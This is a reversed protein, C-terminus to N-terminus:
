GLCQRLYVGTQFHGSLENNTCYRYELEVYDKESDQIGIHARKWVFHVTGATWHHCIYLCNMAYSFESCVVM